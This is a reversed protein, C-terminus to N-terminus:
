YGNFPRLLAPGFYFAVATGAALYVGFPLPSKADAKKMAILVTTVLLGIVSALFFGVVATQASIWGLSLGLVLSFRVDGLGLHRPSIWHILYFLGSWALACLAGVLLHRWRDEIGSAVALLAGVLALHVWVVPRPLRHHEADIWALAVLGAMLACYAPVAWSRGLRAVVGVFLAATGAEVIPYRVAIPARCYRCKGRLVIWSLVPINDLVRLQTHCSPCSSPPAVISMNNPVRWIVVNLFSGITLGFLAAILYLGATV